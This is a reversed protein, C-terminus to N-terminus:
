EEGDPRLEYCAAWQANRVYLRGHAIVPHNWTKGQIAQFRGLEQHGSPSAAVLVAEGRDTVVVLLAQEALLLVQGSGYNGRRWRREGGQLDVCTFSRNDFGYVAEGCVVFDNFSPKLQRSAWRETASWKGGARAVDILATGQGPGLDFLIGGGAARPQVSRPVGPSSLPADHEWLLEGSLPAFALLGRDSAILLHEEDGLSALHPSSYSVKGAPASWALEGSDADYALLTKEGDGGAFVVVRKGVVLPSCSFGWMPVKAGADAAIDRYWKRAGTAADLCNLLGTAGLAFVRGDAFTPTARPGAGSQVDQHRVEDEHSWLTQGTAADLCVVAERKGAQEQTFLRDGVIALSSWAPGIRRRWVLKPPVAEWNTAVREGRVVGDRNPGRFGPWDGLQLKLTQQEAPSAAKEREALYQQEPTQGWRWRIAFQGNGEMGEARILLLAGWSACVVASLLLGRRAPWNRALVFVLAWVTLVLPLGPMLLFPGLSRDALAGATVGVALAVGAVLLREVAGVRSFALWWASFLVLLLAGAGLLLLFGLFGLEGGLETWHLAFYFAWYAALLVFPPWTRPPQASPPADPGLAAPFAGAVELQRTM